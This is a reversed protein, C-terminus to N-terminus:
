KMYPELQQKKVPVCTAWSVRLITQLEWRKLLRECNHDVCDFAKACLWFVVSFTKRSNGQKRESEAFTPLKIGLERGKRFRAQVDPLEWNMDHLKHNLICSKSCWKCDHSIFAITQHSSCKKTIARRPFQFSSQDKGTRHGNSPKGFKSFYWTCCKLLM